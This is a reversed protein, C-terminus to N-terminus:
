KEEPYCRDALRRATEVIFAEAADMDAEPARAVRAEMLSPAAARVLERFALAFMEHHRCEHELSDLDSV